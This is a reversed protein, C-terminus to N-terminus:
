YHRWVAVSSACKCCLLLEEKFIQMQTSVSTISCVSHCLWAHQCVEKLGPQKKYSFSFCLSVSHIQTFSFMPFNFVWGCQSKAIQASTQISVCLCMQILGFIDDQIISIIMPPGVISCTVHIHRQKFHWHQKWSSFATSNLPLLTNWECMSHSCPPAKKLM